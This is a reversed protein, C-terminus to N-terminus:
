MNEGLRGHLQVLIIVEKTLMPSHKQPREVLLRRLEELWDRSVQGIEILFSLGFEVIELIRLDNSISYSKRYTIKLIDRLFRYLMEHM